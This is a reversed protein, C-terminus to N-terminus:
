APPAQNLRHAGPVDIGLTATVREANVRGPLHGADANRCLVLSAGAALPTLLWDRPDALDAVLLRDGPKVGLVAGRETAADILEAQTRIVGDPTAFAASDPVVPTHPMFRDGHVRVETAYDTVGPPAGRLPPALPALSLGYVDDAGTGLGADLRDPGAFALDAPGEAVVVLGASWCALLIAATQWHPPLLVAARAGPEVGGDQILNATKAVWNELTTASLEIREGTADDYFTLLPGAPDTALAQALLAAATRARPESPM